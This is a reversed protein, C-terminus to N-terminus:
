HFFSGTYLFVSDGLNPMCVTWLVRHQKKGLDRKVGNFDIPSPCESIRVRLNRVGACFKWTGNALKINFGIYTQMKELINRFFTFREFKRLFCNNYKVELCWDTIRPHFTFIKKINPIVSKMTIIWGKRGDLWGHIAQKCILMLCEILYGRFIDGEISM